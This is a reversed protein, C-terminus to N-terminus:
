LNKNLPNEVFKRVVEGSVMMTVGYNLKEEKRVRVMGKYEDELLDIENLASEPILVNIYSASTSTALGLIQPKDSDKLYGFVLGGSYGHNFNADLLFISENYQSPTIIASTLLKNGLPYGLIYAETGMKILSNKAFEMKIANVDHGKTKVRYMILDNTKDRALEEIWEEEIRGFKLSYDYMASYTKIFNSNPYRHIIVEPYDVIHLTSLLIIENKDASIATATGSSPQRIFDPKFKQLSKKDALDAESIEDEPQFRYQKYVALYNLQVVSKEVEAALETLSFEVKNDSNVVVPLARSNYCGSLFIIGWLFVSTLFGFTIRRSFTKLKVM